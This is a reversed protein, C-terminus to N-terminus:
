SGFRLRKARTRTTANSASADAPVEFIRWSSDSWAIRFVANCGPCPLSAPSGLLPVRASCAPCVAYSTGWAKAATVADRPRSVVSWMEPRIPLIQLFPRPVALPQRNVELIATQPTLSLVRYWAGRRLPCQTRATVRAWHQAEPM